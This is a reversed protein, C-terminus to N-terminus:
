AGIERRYFKSESALTIREYENSLFEKIDNRFRSNKTVHTKIWRPLVGREILHLHPSFEEPFPLNDLLKFLCKQSPLEKGSFLQYLYSKSYGLQKSLEPIKIGKSDLAKAFAISFKM